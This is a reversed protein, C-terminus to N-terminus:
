ACCLIGGCDASALSVSNIIGDIFFRGLVVVVLFPEMFCSRSLGAAVDVNGVFYGIGSAFEDECAMEDGYRCMPWSGCNLLGIPLLEGDLRGVCEVFPHVGPVEGFCDSPSPEAFFALCMFTISEM